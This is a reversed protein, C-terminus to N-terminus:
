RKEHSDAEPVTDGGDATSAELAEDTVAHKEKVRRQALEMATRLQAVHERLARVRTADSGGRGVVLLMSSVLDAIMGFQGKLQGQLPVALRKVQQPAMGIARQNKVDNAMREVVAHIGSLAMLGDELTKLKLTGAGDLKVPPM